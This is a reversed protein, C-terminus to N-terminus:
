TTEKPKQLFTGDREWRFGCARTRFRDTRNMCGSRRESVLAILRYYRQSNSWSKLSQTEVVTDEGPTGIM